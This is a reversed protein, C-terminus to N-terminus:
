QQWSLYMNITFFQPIMDCVGLSFLTVYSVSYAFMRSFIVSWQKHVAFCYSAWANFMSGFFSPYTYTRPDSHM